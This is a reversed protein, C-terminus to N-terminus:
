SIALVRRITLLNGFLGRIPKLDNAHKKLREMEIFPSLFCFAGRLPKFDNAHKSLAM